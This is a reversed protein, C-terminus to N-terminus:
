FGGALLMNGQTVTVEGASASKFSAGMSVWVDVGTNNWTMTGASGVAGQIFYQASASWVGEDVTHLVTQNGTGPDGTEHVHSDVIVCSGETPTIVVTGIQSNGEQSGSANLPTTQDVGAYSSSTIRFQDTDSATGNTTGLGTPPAKLYWMEAAIGTDVSHLHRGIRTLNNGAYSINTFSGLTAGRAQVSVVLLPNAGTVTHALAITTGSYLTGRAKADFIIEM